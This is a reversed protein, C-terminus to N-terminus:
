IQYLHYLYYNLFIDKFIYKNERFFFIINDSIYDEIQYHLTKNVRDSLYDYLDASVRVIANTNVDYFYKGKPTEFCHIFPKNM